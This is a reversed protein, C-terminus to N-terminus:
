DCWHDHCLGHKEITWTYDDLNQGIIDNAHNVAEAGRGQAAVVAIGPIRTAEPDRRFEEVQKMTVKSEDIIKLGNLAARYGIEREGEFM